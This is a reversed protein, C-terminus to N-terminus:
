KSDGLGGLAAVIPLGHRGDHIEALLRTRGDGGTDRPMTQVEDVLLVVFRAFREPQTTERVAAWPTRGAQM